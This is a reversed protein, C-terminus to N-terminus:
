GLLHHLIPSRSHHGDSYLLIILAIAFVGGPNVFVLATISSYVAYNPNWSFQFLV